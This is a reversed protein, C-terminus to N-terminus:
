TCRLTRWSRAATDSAALQQRLKSVAQLVVAAAAAPSRVTGAEAFALVLARSFEVLEAPRHALWAQTAPERLLSATSAVRRARALQRSVEAKTIESPRRIRGERDLDMYLGRRKLRDADEAFAGTQELIQELQTVRMHALRAATGPPSISAAAVLM